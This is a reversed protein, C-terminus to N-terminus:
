GAHRLYFVAQDGRGERNLRQARRAFSRIEAKMWGSEKRDVMYSRRSYLGIGRENQESAWFQMANSNYVVRELCLGSRRALAEVGTGSLVHLHRPPDLAFWNAGYRDFAECPVVPMSLVLTGAPALLSAAIAITKRPDPVHEFSHHFYIVDQEGELESIDAKRITVGNSYEIDASLFPDVGTVASFGIGGLAVTNRGSGCGVDLIRSSPMIGPIRLARMYISPAVRDMLRGVAGRGVVEYRDRARKLAAMWGPDAPPPRLSYYDAPYYRAMDDPVTAIQVSGCDGCEFYRFTDDLGLMIERAEFSKHNGEAACIRCTLM